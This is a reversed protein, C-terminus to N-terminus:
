NVSTSIESSSNFSFCSHMGTPHTGAVRQGYAQTLKPSPPTPIDGFFYFNFFFIPPTYRGLPTYRDPPHVQGPPTGAQPTDAGPPDAESVGGGRHVSHCVSTFINGQGCSRQPRYCLCVWYKDQVSKRIPDAIQVIEASDSLHLFIRFNDNVSSAMNTNVQFFKGGHNTNSLSGVKENTSEIELGIFFKM